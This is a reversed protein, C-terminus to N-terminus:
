NNKQSNVMMIMMLYNLHKLLILEM